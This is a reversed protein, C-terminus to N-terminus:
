LLINKRRLGPVCQVATWPELQSRVTAAHAPTSASRLPHGATIPPRGSVGLASAAICEVGAVPPCCVRLRSKEQALGDRHYLSATGRLLLTGVPERPATHAWPRAGARSTTILASYVPGPLRTCHLTNRARCAALHFLQLAVGLWGLRPACPATSGSPAPTGQQLSGPASMRDLTAPRTPEV